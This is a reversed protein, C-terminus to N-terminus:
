TKPKELTGPIISDYKETKNYICNYCIYGKTNNELHRQRWDQYIKSHWIEKLKLKNCDGIILAKHYDLVCGSLYGEATITFSSFPQFCVGSHGRGRINKEELVRKHAILHRIEGHMPVVLFPKINKYFGIMDPINTHGSVHFDRDDSYKVLVGKESLNNIIRDNYQKHFNYDNMKILNKILNYKHSYSIFKIEYRYNTM